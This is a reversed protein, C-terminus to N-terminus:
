NISLNCLQMLVRTFTGRFTEVTYSCGKQMWEKPAALTFLFFVHGEDWRCHLCLM